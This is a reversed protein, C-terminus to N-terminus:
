TWNPEVRDNLHVELNPLPIETEPAPDHPPLAEIMSKKLMPELQEMRLVALM